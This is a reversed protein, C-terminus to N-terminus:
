RGCAGRPEPIVDSPLDDDFRQAGSTSERVVKRKRAVHYETLVAHAVLDLGARQTGDKATFTTPTAEGSIAVSDGDALALLAGVAADAFAVVNVFLTEGERTAARVKATAFTNGNKATRAVPAGYIRGAILADIM